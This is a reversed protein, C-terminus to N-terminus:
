LITVQKLYPQFCLDYTPQLSLGTEQDLHYTVSLGAYFLFEYVLRGEGHVKGYYLGKQATQQTNGWVMVPTEYPIGEAKTYRWPKLYNDMPEVIYTSFKGRVQRYLARDVITSDKPLPKYKDSTFLSILVKTLFNIFKLPTTELVQHIHVGSVTSPDFDDKMLQKILPLTLLNPPINWRAGKLKELFTEEDIRMYQLYYNSPYNLPLKTSICSDEFVNSLAREQFLVPTDLLDSPTDGFLPTTNYTFRSINVGAKLYNNYIIAHDECCFYIDGIKYTLLDRGVYVPHKSCGPYGCTKDALDDPDQDMLNVFEM